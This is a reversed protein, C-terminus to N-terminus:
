INAKICSAKPHIVVMNNNPILEWNRDDYDLPESCVIVSDKCADANGIVNKEKMNFM